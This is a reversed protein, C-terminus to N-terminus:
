CTRTGTYSGLVVEIRDLITADDPIHELRVSYENNPRLPLADEIEGGVPESIAFVEFRKQEDCQGEGIDSESRWKGTEDVTIPADTTVYYTTQDTPRLLLWLSQDTSLQATGTLTTPSIITAGQTPSLFQASGVSQAPTSQVSSSSPGSAPSQVGTERAVRFLLASGIVVALVVVIVTVQLIPGRAKVLGPPGTRRRGHQKSQPRSRRYRPQPILGVQQDTHDAASTEVLKLKELRAATRTSAATSNALHLEDLLLAFDPDKLARILVKDSPPRREWEDTLHVRSFPSALIAQAKPSDTWGVAAAATADMLLQQETPQPLPQLGARPDYLLEHLQDYLEADTIEHGDDRSDTNM